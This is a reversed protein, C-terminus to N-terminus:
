LHCQVNLTVFEWTFVCVCVKSILDHFKAYVLCMIDTRCTCLFYPTYIDPIAM